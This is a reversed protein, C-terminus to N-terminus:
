NDSVVGGSEFYSMLIYASKLSNELLFMRGSGSKKTTAGEMHYVTIDPCYVTTGGNNKIMRHLIDEEMYMFTRGDLGGYKKVFVPSFILFCGHLTVDSVPRLLEMTDLDKKSSKQKCLKCFLNYLSLLGYKNYFRMHKLGKIVNEVEKKSYAKLRMPNSTYKGDGSLIMPGMVDFSYEKFYNLIIEKIDKQILLIDNNMLVIFDAKLTHKAYQYGVNNGRAFGLNEKNAIVTIFDWDKYYNKLYEYSGNQSNNDIIVIEFPQEVFKIISSVCKVTLEKTLYNLIVFCFCMYM